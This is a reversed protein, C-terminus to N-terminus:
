LAMCINVWLYMVSLQPEQYRADSTMTMMFNAFSNSLSRTGPLYVEDEGFYFEISLASGIVSHRM